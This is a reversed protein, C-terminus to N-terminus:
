FQRRQHLKLSEAIIKKLNNTAEEDSVDTMLNSRLYSIDAMTSLETLGSGVMLSFMTILLSSNKRLVSFAQISLEVFRAYLPSEEGQLVHAFAPSFAFRPEIKTVGFKSTFHGSFQGFDIHFLEGTKKLMINDDKRDGIGLVFIAVCYGACSRLFRERAIDLGSYNAEYYVPATKSNKARDKEWSYHTDLESASAFKTEGNRLDVLYGEKTPQKEVVTCETTDQFIARDGAVFPGLFIHIVFLFM